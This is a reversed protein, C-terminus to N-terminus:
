NNITVVITSDLDLIIQLAESIWDEGLAEPINKGPEDGSQAEVENIFASVIKKCAKFMNNAVNEKGLLVYDLAQEKKKTAESLKDLLSLRIDDDIGSEAVGETLWQFELDIYRAMSEKTAEVTLSASDSESVTTDGESIATADYEYTADESGAWDSPVIASFIAIDYMGPDLPGLLTKDITTWGPQISTPVVRYAGDFDVYTLSLDFSDQINGINMVKIGYVGTGGPNISVISPTISVDVEYFPLVHIVAEKSDTAVLGHLPAQQSTGTLTYPYDGPSTSWHRYPRVSLQVSVSSYADVIVLTSSLEYWWSGPIGVISLTFTDLVNGRNIVLVDYTGIDGPVIDMSNPTIVIKVGFKKVFVSVDVTPDTGEHVSLYLGETLWSMDLTFLSISPDGTLWDIWEHFDFKLDFHLKFITFYYRFDSLAIEAFDTPGLDEAHVTFPIKQDPSTWTITQMGIADGGATAKATIKDSGLQPDLVTKLKLLSFEIIWASDFVTIEFSDVPFEMLPGLPTTFSKSWDYDPGFSASYEEWGVFPIWVGAEVWVQAVFTCKFEDFNPRDLPTLTAYIEYDHEVTMQEPYELTIRVPLRLGFGIDVDIGARAYAVEIDLEMDWRWAVLQYTFGMLVEQELVVDQTVMIYDMSEESSTPMAVSMSQDITSPVIQLKATKTVITEIITDKTGNHYDIITMTTGNYFDTFDVTPKSDEEALEKAIATASSMNDYISFVIIFFLTITVLSKKNNTKM